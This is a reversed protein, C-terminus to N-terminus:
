GRLLRDAARQGSITASELNQFSHFDGALQVRQDHECLQRFRGLDRYCGVTFYEERWRRVEAFEIHATAGPLVDDLAALIADRIQDDPDDWHAASWSDLVAVTLLAKGAPARGPAKHHDLMVGTLFPHSARPVLIYTSEVGRLPQSLGVNLVLLQGDRVRGLYSRRFDDLGPLIRAATQAPTAIVCAAAHDVRVTGGQDTWTVTVGDESDEVATVVAGLETKADSALREAYSGMGNRFALLKAGSLLALIALFDVRSATDGSTAAIGRITTEVLYERLEASFRSAAWQSVTETDYGGLEPIRTYKGRRARVLEPGLRVLEAKARTSLLGTRLISRVLHNGDLDHVVGDRAVGLIFGGEVIEGAMGVSAATALLTRHTSPIFFAGEDVLFGERRSTRMKGGIVDGADLIRAPLGSQSLRHAAALGSPGGGVVIVENSGSV